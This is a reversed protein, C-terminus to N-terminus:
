GRQFLGKYGRRKLEADFDDISERALTKSNINTQLVLSVQGNQGINGGMETLADKFSQKMKDEPSVIESQTRNDGIVAIQPSNPKLVNGTAYQPVSIGEKARQNASNVSWAIAATGAVIAAAAIGLSWASQLAGIAIAAASAAIAIAGLIGVTKEIGNMKNWNLALLVVGAVLLAFAGVTVLLSLNMLIFSATAKGVATVLDWAYMATLAITELKDIVKAGTCAWIAATITGFAAALGGSMQIFALLETLKWLGFFITLSTVMADVVSQHNSMWDGMNKLAEATGNITAVIVGGTWSAIPSLFNNWLWEGLPKFGDLIPNLFTFAGAILNIFAPVLDNGVWNGFPVFINDWAWKLGEGVNKAFPKFADSLPKLYKSIKDAIAKIKPSITDEVTPEVVPSQVTNSSTGSTSGTSNLQINSIEDFPAVAESAKKSAASVADGASTANSALNSMGSSADEIPSDIKIGFVAMVSGVTNFFSVLGNLATQIAPMFLQAIPIIVNGISTKLQTFTASLRAVQGSFTQSYKAADGTQFKTEQAIGNVEAQIKQQQTLKDSTTGISKAYDEWMKAVNKTVGANDVLISNENKLGETATQVADGLSYSAQRGFSASDKLETLTNQIQSDDYGRAALNKYATVANQLPVLGDAVYSNIFTKAANFSKGQGTLISDLGIFANQSDSAASVAAKGFDIVKSIAFTTAILAGIKGFASNFISSAGNVTNNVQKNFTSSNLNALVDIQGVTTSM